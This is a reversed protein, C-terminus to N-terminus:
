AGEPLLGRSDLFERLEKLDKKRLQWCASGEATNYFVPFIDDEEDAEVYVRVRDLLKVDRPIANEREIVLVGTNLNVSCPVYESDEDPWVWEMRVTLEDSGNLLVASPAQQANAEEHAELYREVWELKKSPSLTDFNIRYNQGVWFGVDEALSENDRLADSLLSEWAKQTLFIELACTDGSDDGSDKVKTKFQGHIELEFHEMFFGLANSLYDPLGYRNISPVRATLKLLSARGSPFRYDQPLLYSGEADFSLRELCGAEDSALYLTKSVWQTTMEEVAKKSSKSAHAHPNQGHATLYSARLATYPVSINHDRILAKQIASVTKKLDKNSINM